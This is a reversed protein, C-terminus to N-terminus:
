MEPRRIRRPPVDPAEYGRAPRARVSSVLAGSRALTLEAALM